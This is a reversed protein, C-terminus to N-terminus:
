TRSFNLRKKREEDRLHQLPKSERKNKMTLCLEEIRHAARELEDKTPQFWVRRPKKSKPLNWMDQLTRGNRETAGANLARQRRENRVPAGTYRMRQRAPGGPKDDKTARAATGILLDFSGLIWSPSPQTARRSRIRQTWNPLTATM